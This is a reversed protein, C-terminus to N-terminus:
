KKIVLDLYPYCFAPVLCGNIRKLFNIYRIGKFGYKLFTTKEYQPLSSIVNLHKIPAIALEFEHYSVGRGWRKFSQMNDDDIERYVGKFDSRNSFRSYYFALDDPLWDFFPLGATHSDYYWLRNPTELVVLLSGSSLMEWAQKLSSIREEVTMHELCAYFIIFDFHTNKFKIIENGNINHFTTKINAIRLRDQAVNLAGQDVDIGTVCAGQESMALTSIGTGCGIELITSGELPKIKNLWPIIRNRNYALRSTLQGEKAAKYEEITLNIRSSGRSLYNNEISIELEKDQEYSYQIYNKKICNPVCVRYHIKKILEKLM